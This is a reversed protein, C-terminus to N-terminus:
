TQRVKQLIPKFLIRTSSLAIGLIQLDGTSPPTTTAKGDTGLYVNKNRVLGSYGNKAGLLMVLALTPTTKAFILGFVSPDETNTEAVVAFDDTDGSQYVFDNIAATEECAITTVPINEDGGTATIIRQYAVGDAEYFSNRILDDIPKTSISGDDVISEERTIRLYTELGSDYFKQRLLDPIPTKTM